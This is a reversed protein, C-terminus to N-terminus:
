KKSPSLEPHPPGMHHRKHCRRCVVALNEPSNNEIDNDKHHLDRAPFMCVVCTAREVLLKKRMAKFEPPYSRLGARGTGQQTVRGVLWNRYCERSCFPHRTRYSKANGASRLFEKSCHTCTLSVQNYNHHKEGVFTKSRHIGYCENSCFHFSDGRKLRRGHESKAITFTKGCTHCEKDLTMTASRMVGMCSPSCTHTLTECAKEQDRLKSPSKSFLIQCVPCKLLLKHRRPPMADSLLWAKAEDSTMWEDFVQPLDKGLILAYRTSGLQRLPQETRSLSGTSVKQKALSSDM